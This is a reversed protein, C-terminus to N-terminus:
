VRLGATIEGQTFDDEDESDLVNSSRKRNAM